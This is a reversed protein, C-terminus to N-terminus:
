GLYKASYKYATIIKFLREAKKIQEIDPEKLFIAFDNKENIISGIFHCKKNMAELGPKVSEWSIDDVLIIGGKKVLPVYNLVDMLVFETDHNGDIHVLGFKINNGIFFEIADESKERILKCNQSLKTNVIIEKVQSYIKNFNTTKIFNDLREKLVPNDNQVAAENTFPDIGFAIGGTYNQHAIAQPFLSRGRYVGIDASADINFEKIFAAMTLAKEYSCGGGFDIPTKRYIKSIQEILFDYEQIKKKAFLKSILKLM